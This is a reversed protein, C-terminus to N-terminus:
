TFTSSDHQHQISSSNILTCIHSITFYLIGLISELQCRGYPILFERRKPHRLNITCGMAYTFASVKQSTEHRWNEEVTDQIEDNHAIVMVLSPM